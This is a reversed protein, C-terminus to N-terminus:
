KKIAEKRSLGFVEDLIGYVVALLVIGIVIQFFIHLDLFWYFISSIISM